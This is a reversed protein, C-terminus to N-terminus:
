EAIEVEVKPHEGGAQGNQEPLPRRPAQDGMAALMQRALGLGTGGMTLAKGFVDTVGDAGNLLVMHEVNEFSKAGAAVVAPLQSVLQQTIVAEQNEALAGGRAKIAEAEALGLAKAAEADAGKADGRRRLAQSQEWHSAGARTRAEVWKPS